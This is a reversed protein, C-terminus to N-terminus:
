PHHTPKGARGLEDKLHRFSAMLEHLNNRVNLQENDLRQELEAFRAKADMSGLHM